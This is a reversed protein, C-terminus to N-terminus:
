ALENLRNKFNVIDKEIDFEQKFLEQIRRRRTVGTIKSFQLIKTYVEVPDNMNALEGMEHHKFIDKLGTLHHGIVYVGHSWYEYLKNPACYEFNLDVGKYLIFGIDIYAYYKDLIQHPVEGCVKFNRNSVQKVLHKAYEALRGILLFHVHGNDKFLDALRIFTDLYHDPGVNGVHAVVMDGEEVGSFIELPKNIEQKFHCSNRFLICNKAEINTLGAFFKLRNIEPFICLDIKSANKVVVSFSFKEAGTSLGPEVLEFQHYIIKTNINVFRKLYFIIAVVQADPTYLIDTKKVVIQRVIYIFLKAYKVFRTVKTQRSFDTRSDFSRLYTTPVNYLYDSAGKIRCEGIRLRYNNAFLKLIYRSVPILSFNNVTIAVVTKL